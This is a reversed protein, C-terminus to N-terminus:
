LVSVEPDEKGDMAAVIPNLGSQESLLRHQEGVYMLKAAIYVQLFRDM